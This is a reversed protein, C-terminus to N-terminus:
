SGILSSSNPSVHYCGSDNTGPPTYECSGETLFVIGGLSNDKYGGDETEEFACAAINQSLEFSDFYLQPKSYTKRM